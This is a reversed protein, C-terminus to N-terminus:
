ALVSPHVPEAKAVYATDEWSGVISRKALTTCVTEKPRLMAQKPPNGRNNSLSGTARARSYYYACSESYAHGSSYGYVAGRRGRGSHRNGSVRGASVRGVSRKSAGSFSRGASGGSAHGASRAGGGGHGSGGRAAMV